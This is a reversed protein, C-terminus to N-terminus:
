HHWIMVTPHIHDGHFIGDNAGEIAAEHYNRCEAM